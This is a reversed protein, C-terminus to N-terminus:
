SLKSFSLLHANYVVCSRAGNEVFAESLRMQGSTTDHVKKYTGSLGEETVVHSGLVAEPPVSFAVRKRLFCTVPTMKM